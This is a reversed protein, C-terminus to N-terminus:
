KLFNCAQKETFLQNPQDLIARDLSIGNVYEMILFVYRSDEYTEIYEALNPHHIKCLLSVEHMIQQKNNTMKKIQLAKIAVHKKESYREQTRFICGMPQVGLVETTKCEVAYGKKLEELGM